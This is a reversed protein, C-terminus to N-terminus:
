SALGAILLIAAFAGIPALHSFEGHRVVTFSAAGMVSAGLLLGLFRSSSFPIMLAAALELLGTVRCWWAPYGWRVFSDRQEARGVANVLGAGAFATVALWVSVTHLM